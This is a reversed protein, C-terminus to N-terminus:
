SSEKNRDTVSLSIIGTECCADRVPEASQAVTANNTLASPSSGEVTSTSNAQEFLFKIFRFGGYSTAILAVILGVTVLCVFWRPYLTNGIWILNTWFSM